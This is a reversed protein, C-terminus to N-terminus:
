KIAEAWSKAIKDWSFQKAWAQQKKQAAENQPAKLADVVARIFKQKSYDDSYIRDTEIYTANPGGTEKLAAVDTIVPKMGAANAKLATICSIEKFQTPYAWVETELMAEALKEHSLRGVVTVGHSLLENFKSEMRFYFEDEGEITVWSEWGYAVVLTADPVLERIRPWMDLLCELGRYYASFYGVSNKKKRM